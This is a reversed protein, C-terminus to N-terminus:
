FSFTATWNGSVPVAASQTANVGVENLEGLFSGSGESGYTRSWTLSGTWSGSGTFNANECGATVCVQVTGNVNEISGDMTAFNTTGTWIGSGTIHISGFSIPVTQDISMLMQVNGEHTIRGNTFDGSIKYGNLTFTFTGTGGEGAVTAAGFLPILTIAVLLTVFFLKSAIM